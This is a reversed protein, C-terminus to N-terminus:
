AVIFQNVRYRVHTKRMHKRTVSLRNIAVEDLCLLCVCYNIIWGNGIMDDIFPKESKGFYDDKILKEIKKTLSIRRWEGKFHPLYIVILKVLIILM